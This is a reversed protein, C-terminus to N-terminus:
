DRAPEGVWLAPERLDLAWARDRVFTAGLNGDIILDRIVVDTKWRAGSVIELEAACTRENSEIRLQNAAHPALLVPGTNATDLELWVTAQGRRAAVYVEVALGQLPRGVRIDLSTMSDTRADSELVLEGDRFNATFPQDLFSNLALVGGITPFDDPLLAMLDLVGLVEHHIPRGGLDLTVDPCRALDVREGTMRFGTLRGSPRLGAREALDTTITTLGAGTDFLFPHTEGSLGVEIAWLGHPFRQLPLSVPGRSPM